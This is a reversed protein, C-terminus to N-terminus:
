QNKLNEINKLKNEIQKNLCENGEKVIKYQRMSRMLMLYKELFKIMSMDVTRNPYKM